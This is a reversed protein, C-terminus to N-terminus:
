LVHVGFGHRLSGWRAFGPRLPLLAVPTGVGSRHAPFGPRGATGGPHLPLLYGGPYGAGCPCVPQEEGRRELRRSPGEQRGAAMKCLGPPGEPPGAQDLGLSAARGRSAATCTVRSPPRGRGAAPGGARPCGQAPLQAAKGPQSGSPRPHAEGEKAPCRGAFPLAPQQPAAAWSETRRAALEDPLKPSVIAPARAFPM